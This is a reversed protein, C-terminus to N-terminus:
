PVQKESSYAVALYDRDVKKHKKKATRNVTSIASEHISEHQKMEHQNDVNGKVWIAAAIFIFCIKLGNVM